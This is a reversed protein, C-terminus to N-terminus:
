RIDDFKRVNVGLAAALYDRKKFIARMIKWFRASNLVTDKTFHEIEMVPERIRKSESRITRRFIFDLVQLDNTAKLWSNRNTWSSRRNSGLLAYVRQHAPNTRSFPSRKALSMGAALQYEICIAHFVNLEKDVFPGHILFKGSALDVLRTEGANVDAVDEDEVESLLEEEETKRFLVSKISRATSRLSEISGAHRLQVNSKVSERSQSRSYISNKNSKHGKHKSHRSNDRGRSLERHDNEHTDIRSAREFKDNILQDIWQKMNKNHRLEEKDFAQNVDRKQDFRPEVNGTIVEGTLRQPNSPARPIETEVESPPTSPRRVKELKSVVTQLTKLQTELFKIESQEEQRQKEIDVRRLQEAAIAKRLRHAELEKEHELSTRIMEAPQAPPPPPPPPIRRKGIPSTGTQFDFPNIPKPRMVNSRIQNPIDNINRQGEADISDRIGTSRLSTNKLLEPTLRPISKPIGVVRQSPQLVADVHPKGSPADNDDIM